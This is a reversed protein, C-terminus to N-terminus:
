AEKKAKQLSFAITPILSSLLTYFILAYIIQTDVEGRDKLVGAIVLGFILTPMLSLSIDYPKKTFDKLMFKISTTNILLRLPIFIILFVTGMIIAETTFDSFSLKAGAFFFYFPLFVNFFSSLSTFIVSEDDQFIEEKFRAGILGVIFAGVLYYAGVEKSVVGAILSIVVLFPVESNPAYPRIFKFYFKFVWPLLVFLVVFFIMSIVMMKPNHSQLAIFMLVISIVEKSIAKSKVWYEQDEGIKFSHLSNIIFGASPTFIGLALIVSNQIAMNFFYTFFAAIIGMIFISKSLYKTLYVRDEKLEDFNVELGSFVFLSTIGIQALFRFLPEAEINSDFHAFTIGILLATIGSPIKLKLLVKPLLLVLSFVAIYELDTTLSLKEM